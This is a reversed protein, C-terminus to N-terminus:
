SNSTNLIFDFVLNNSLNSNKKFNIELGNVNELLKYIEKNSWIEIQRQVIEKDKWFIPPKFNNITDQINGLELQLKKLEILRKIRSLFSRILIIM